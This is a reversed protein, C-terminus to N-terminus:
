ESYGLAWFVGMSKSIQIDVTFPFRSFKNHVPQQRMKGNSIVGSIVGLIIVSIVGSIEGGIIM